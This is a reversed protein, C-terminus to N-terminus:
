REQAEVVLQLAHLRGVLVGEDVADLQLGSTEVQARILQGPLALSPRRGAGQHHGGIQQTRQQEFQDALQLARGCM